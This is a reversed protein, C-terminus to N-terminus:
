PVQRLGSECERASRDFASGTRIDPIVFGMYIQDTAAYGEWQLPHTGVLRLAKKNDEKLNM